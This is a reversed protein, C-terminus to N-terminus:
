LSLARDTLRCHHVGNRDELSTQTSCEGNWLVRQGAEDVQPLVINVTHSFREGPQASIVFQAYCAADPGRGDPRAEDGNGTCVNARGFADCLASYVATISSMKAARMDLVTTEQGRPALISFGIGPHPKNDIWRKLAKERTSM